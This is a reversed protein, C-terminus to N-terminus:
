AEGDILGNEVAILGAFYDANLSASNLLVAGGSNTHNLFAIILMRGEGIDLDTAVVAAMGGGPIRESIPEMDVFAEGFDKVMQSISKSLHAAAGEVDLDRAGDERQATIITPRRAMKGTSVNDAVFLMVSDTANAIRNCYDIVVQPENAMTYEGRSIIPRGNLDILTPTPNLVAAEGFTSKYFGGSNAVENVYVHDDGLSLVFDKELYPSIADSTASDFHTLVPTGSQANEHIAQEIKNRIAEEVRLDVNVMVQPGINIFGGSNGRVTKTQKLSAEIGPPTLLGAIDNFGIARSIQDFPVSTILGAISNATQLMADKAMITEMEAVLATLRTPDLMGNSRHALEMRRKFTPLRRGDLYDALETTGIGLADALDKRTGLGQERQYWTLYDAITHQEDM